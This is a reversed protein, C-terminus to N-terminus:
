VVPESYTDDSLCGLVTSPRDLDENIPSGCHQSGTREFVEVISLRKPALDRHYAMSRSTGVPHRM